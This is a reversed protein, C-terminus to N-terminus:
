YDRSNQQYYDDQEHKTARRASIIRIRGNRETYVAFLLVGEVMGTITFRDEGYDARDDYEGVAFPDSFILRAREFTVGHKADNAVNKADDWEFYDDTM